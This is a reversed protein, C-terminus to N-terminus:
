RLPGSGGTVWKGEEDFHPYGNTLPTPRALIKDWDTTPEFYGPYRLHEKIVAENLELGLGPTDPVPVHGKDIYPKPLGAVLEQWWSLFDVAHCEMALFNEITAATHV